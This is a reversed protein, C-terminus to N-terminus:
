RVPLPASYLSTNVHFNFTATRFPTEASVAYKILHQARVSRPFVMQHGVETYIVCEGCEANNNRHDCYGDAVWSDYCGTGSYSSYDHYASVSVASVVVAALGLWRNSTKMMVM